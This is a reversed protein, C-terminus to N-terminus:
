QPLWSQKLDELKQKAETVRAQTDRVKDYLDFSFFVYTDDVDQRRVVGLAYNNYRILGGLGAGNNDTGLTVLTSVGWWHKYSTDTYRVFGIPEVGVSAELKAQKRNPWNLELGVSPRVVVWQWRPAAAFLDQYDQGWGNIALEWPWMPLGDTMYHMYEEARTRVQASYYKDFSQLQESLVTFVVSAAYAINAKQPNSVILKGPTESACNFVVQRSEKPWILRANGSVPDTSFQFYNKLNEGGIQAQLVKRFAQVDPDNAAAKGSVVLTNEEREFVNSIAQVAKVPDRRVDPALLAGRAMAEFSLPYNPDGAEDCWPSVAAAASAIGFVFVIVSFVIQRTGSKNHM